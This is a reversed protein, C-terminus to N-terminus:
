FVRGSLYKSVLLGAGLFAVALQLMVPFDSLGLVRLLLWFIAWLLLGIGLTLMALQVYRNSFFKM